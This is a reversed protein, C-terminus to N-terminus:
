QMYKIVNQPDFWDTIFTVYGSLSMAKKKLMPSHVNVFTRCKYKANKAEQILNIASSNGDLALLISEKRKFIEYAISKYIGMSSPEIAVRVKVDAKQIRVLEDHSITSPVFAYIDFRGHNQKLLYSEYGLLRNGIVFINKEPDAEKLLVDILDYIEKKCKTKHSDNNFSGGAIIVPKRNEPMEEIQDRLVTKADFVEVASTLCDGIDNVSEMREQMLSHYDNDRLMQNLQDRKSEFAHKSDAIIDKETECMQHIEDASLNLMKELALQEDISDTGYLAGGDTGQVCRIGAKLYQKLPHKSLDSLNNLRVNSTIQFELTVHYRKLDRILVKGKLSNLNATYLGHGIRIHPMKQDKQLSSAVIEISNYVNDTLSDNEGAHIRIVFSPDKSAIKTLESLLPKLERIDNIEEGVIDSGAVYPDIMVAYLAKLNETYNNAAISDRVITLPIRRFAALFRILVGTEEYISPMVAHVEELMRISAEKKVLTTDSIEVYQIGLKQYMRAIWLLKDQFLSNNQYVPHDEDKEMQKLISVIDEDEIRDMNHLVMKKKFPQGKTFVYRYLYVKELNTFVAQGDKMVALSSRIRPINYSANELNNLILDAFNIFTNDDIKRDLYKGKLDSDSFQQSVRKREERLYDMQKQSCKLQLKKIYYLPYRIQHHIGLAICVDASLNANMHTHLDTHFKNEKLIFTKVVTKYFDLHYNKTQSMLTKSIAPISAKREIRGDPYINAVKTDRLRFIYVLEGEDNYYCPVNGEIIKLGDQDTTIVLDCMKALNTILNGTSHNPTRLIYSMKEDDLYLEVIIDKEQDLYFHAFYKKM